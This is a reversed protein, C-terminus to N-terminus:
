RRQENIVAAQNGLLMSILVALDNNLGSIRVLGDLNLDASHYVGSLTLSQNGGLAAVLAAADNGLGSFRVNGNSNANGGIMVTNAGIVRYAQADGYINADTATNFDFTTVAPPAIGLSKATF